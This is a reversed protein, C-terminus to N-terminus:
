RINIPFVLDIAPRQPPPAYYVPPPATVYVPAAYGVSHHVPHRGRDHHADRGRDDDARAPLSSLGGILAALAITLAIGGIKGYGIRLPSTAAKM